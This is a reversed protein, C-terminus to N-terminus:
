TRGFLNWLRHYTQCLGLVNTASVSVSDRFLGFYSEVHGMDGVLEM